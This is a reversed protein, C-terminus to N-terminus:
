GIPTGIIVEKNRFNPREISIVYVIKDNIKVIKANSALLLSKLSKKLSSFGAVNNEKKKVM